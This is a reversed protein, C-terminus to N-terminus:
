LESCPRFSKRHQSSNGYEILKKRHEKTGYGKHQSINYKKFEDKNGEEECYKDRSTKALISASAISLYKGDGKIINEITFGKFNEEKFGIGDILLKYQFIDKPKMIVKKNLLQQKLNELARNMALKNALAIGMSDIEVSSASGIGYFCNEIVWPRLINRKKESLKKSDTITKHTTNKPWIVASAFVPGWWCGRGAEDIGIEFENEKYQEM